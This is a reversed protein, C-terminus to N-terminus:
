VYRLEDIRRALMLVVIGLIMLIQVTGLSIPHMGAEHVMIPVGASKLLNIIFDLGLIGMILGYSIITEILNKQLDRLNGNIM